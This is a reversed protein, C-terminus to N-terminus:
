MKELVRCVHHLVRDDLAIMLEDNVNKVCSVCVLVSNTDSNQLETLDRKWKSLVNCHMTQRVVDTDHSLVISRMLYSAADPCVHKCYMADPTQAHVRAQM